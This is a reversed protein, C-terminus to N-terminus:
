RIERNTQGAVQSLVDSAKRDVFGTVLQQAAGFVVAWALIQATTDLNSLGPIFEGRMLLLGLVATLAGMPLKLISLAVPMGLRTSRSNLHRLGAAGSVAGSLLGIFEILVIDVPSPASGTPCIQAVGPRFCLQVHMPEVWGWVALGVAALTLVLATAYLVACFTQVRSVERRAELSAVSVAQIIAQKGYEDLKGEAAADALKEVRVRRPDNKRLHFQVHAKIHNMQGCLYEQPARRLLGIEAADLNSTVREMATANRVPRYRSLDKAAGTAERLHEKIAGDVPSSSPKDSGDHGESFCKLLTGLEAGRTLAEERWPRNTLDNFPFPQWGVKQAQANDDTQQASPDADTGSAHSREDDGPVSTSV